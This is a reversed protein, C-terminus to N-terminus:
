EFADLVQKLTSYAHGADPIFTSSVTVANGNLVFQAYYETVQGYLEDPSSVAVINVALGSPTTYTEGTFTYEEPFGMGPFMNDRAIPSHDTYSRVIVEVRVPVRSSLIASGDPNTLGEAPLDVYNLYWVGNTGAATLIGDIATYDVRCTTEGVATGDVYLVTGTEAEALVPNNMLDMGLFEEAKDWSNFNLQGPTGAPLAAAAERATPSFAEVPHKLVGVPAAPDSGEPQEVVTTFGNIPEGTVPSTDMPKFIPVGFVAEAAFAGGVLAICLCAAAVAIRVPRLARRKAPAAASEVLAPDIGNLISHTWDAQKM